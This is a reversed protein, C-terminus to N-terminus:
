RDFSGPDISGYDGWYDGGAGKDGKNSGWGGFFGVTAATAATNAFANSMNKWGQAQGSVGQMYQSYGQGMLDGYMQAEVGFPDLRGLENLLFQRQAVYPEYQNVAFQQQRQQAVNQLGEGMM